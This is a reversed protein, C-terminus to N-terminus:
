YMPVLAVWIFMGKHTFQVGLRTMRCMHSYVADTHSANHTQETFQTHKLVSYICGKHICVYHSREMCSVNVGRCSAAANPLTSVTFNRMDWNLASRPALSPTLATHGGDTKDAHESISERREVIYGLWTLASTM